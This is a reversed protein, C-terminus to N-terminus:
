FKNLKTIDHWQSLWWMVTVDIVENIGPNCNEM